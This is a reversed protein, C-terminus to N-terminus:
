EEVKRKYGNQFYTTKPSLAYNKSTNALSWDTYETSFYM